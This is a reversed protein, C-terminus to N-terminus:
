RSREQGGAAERRARGPLHAQPPRLYLPTAPWRDPNGTALRDAVLPAFEAARPPGSLDRALATDSRRADLLGTPQDAVVPLKQARALDLVGGADRIAADAPDRAAVTLPTVAATYYDNRKTDIAVICGSSCRVALAEFTSIGIAPIDAALAIGHAAALGIRLGTFAGPGRTVGVADLDAFSVAAAALTETIM